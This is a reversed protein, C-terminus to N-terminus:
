KGLRDNPITKEVRTLPKETDVTSLWYLGGLVVLLLLVLVIPLRSASSRRAPYRSRM